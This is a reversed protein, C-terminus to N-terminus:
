SLRQFISLYNKTSIELSTCPWDTHVTQNKSPITTQSHIRMSVSRKLILSKLILGGLIGMWCAPHHRFWMLLAGAFVLFTRSESHQNRQARANRSKAPCPGLSLL